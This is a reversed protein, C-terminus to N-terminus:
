FGAPYVSFIIREPLLPMRKYFVPWTKIYAGRVSPIKELKEKAADKKDFRIKKRLEEFDYGGIVEEEVSLVILAQGLFFDKNLVKITWKEPHFEFIQKEIESDGLLVKIKYDVLEQLDKKQFVMIKSNETDILDNVKWWDQGLFSLPAIRAPIIDLNFLVSNVNVDLKVEFDALLPESSVALDVRASPFWAFFFIVSLISSGIIYFKLSPFSYQMAFFNVGWKEWFSV